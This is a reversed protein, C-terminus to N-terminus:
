PKLDEKNIKKLDKDDQIREKILSILILITGIGMLVFSIRLIFLFLGDDEMEGDEEFDGFFIPYFSVLIIIILGLLFIIAGTVTLKNM